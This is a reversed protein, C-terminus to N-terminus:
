RAFWGLDGGTQSTGDQGYQQAAVAFDGTSQVEELIEEARALVEAKAAEDMGQTSLLIHSARMRPVGDFQESIKFSIYSSRNTLFPGYVVGVEPDEVNSTFLAP